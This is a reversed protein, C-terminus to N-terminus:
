LKQLKRLTNELLNKLTMYNQRNKLLGPRNEALFHM